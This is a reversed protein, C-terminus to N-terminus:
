IRTHLKCDGNIWFDPGDKGPVGAGKHNDYVPCECNLKVAEKSGLNPISPKM